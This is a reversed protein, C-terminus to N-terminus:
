NDEFTTHSNWQLMVTKENIWGFNLPGPVQLCCISAAYNCILPSAESFGKVWVDLPVYGWNGVCQHKINLGVM